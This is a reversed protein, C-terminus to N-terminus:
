PQKSQCEATCPCQNSIRRARWNGSAANESAASVAKSRLKEAAAAAFTAPDLLRQRMERLSHFLDLKRYLSDPHFADLENIEIDLSLGSDGVAELHIRPEIRALVSDFTDIDLAHITRQSIPKAVTEGRRHGSFNGVVLIRQPIQESRMAAHKPQPKTFNFEFDTMGSM